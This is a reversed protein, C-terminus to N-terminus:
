LSKGLVLHRFYAVRMIDPKKLLEWETKLMDQLWNKKNKIDEGHLSGLARLGLENKIELGGGAWTLLNENEYYKIDGFASSYSYEGDMLKHAEDLDYDQVVAQIIRGVRNHRVVSMIGDKKLVRMLEKLIPVPNEVFEFVLHCVVMDFTQDPINKLATIDGQLQEFNHKNKCAAIMEPYMEVATVTNHEALFDATFGFGSGFDLIKKGSIDELQRWLTKYYLEGLPSVTYDHYLKMDNTM